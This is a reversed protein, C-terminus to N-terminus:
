VSPRYRGYANPSLRTNKYGSLWVLMAPDKTVNLLLDGFSGLAGDRLTQNQQLMLQQSKVGVTSTAFWDHWVLAMREVLPARTRVMRDLWWLGDHGWADLPALPRGQEDKPAPGVLRTTGPRTLSAVAREVGLKALREAEGRRPGFGARWLLREAQERTFPGRYTPM